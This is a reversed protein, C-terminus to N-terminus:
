CIKKLQRSAAPAITIISISRGFGHDMMLRKLNQKKPGWQARAARQFLQARQERPLKELWPGINNPWAQGNKRVRKPKM